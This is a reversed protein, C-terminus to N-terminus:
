ANCASLDMFAFRTGDFLGKDSLKAEPIVLLAMFSLTMFPASLTSGMERALKTMRFYKEAVSFGDEDTMLGAIPLPLFEERAGDVVALGGKNGIVMNVARTLEEDDAGVALINHSDHGVSAAMAGRKLGFGRIFALAPPAEEYRNVVTLKLLDRAPDPVALGDVVKPPEEVKRTLLQGDMAEIVNLTKGGAKVAFDQIKKEHAKFNNVIKVKQHPILSRGKEAVKDGDIWTELVRFNDFNDIVAFDAPDGKQLLGVPLGYHRIPNLSACRLVTMRDYGLKLAQKVLENVHGEVLDDPHRDDSCFMCMEPSEKLLPLLTELSKAASGERILIKMGLGIKERAEGITTCEHDTSIGASVYKKLDEGSVGPAHGDVPKGLKRATEIRAMVAPDRFIVGPFNMMESLYLLGDDKLLTEIEPAEFSAGATEFSTAPVCSPAGFFFKFPVSRGNEVMYRVGVLGLVNAIEHPDSVTAVTGHRVALRAFESPVLMSSEIHVHSDVLGPIIYTDYKEGGRQIDEIKGDSIFLIGPYIEGAVVDVINGSVKAAKIGQASM